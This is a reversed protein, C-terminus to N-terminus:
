ILISFTKPPSLISFLISSPFIGSLLPQQRRITSSTHSSTITQPWIFSIEAGSTISSKFGVLISKIWHKMEVVICFLTSLSTSLSQATGLTKPRPNEPYHYPKSTFAATTLGSNEDMHWVAAFFKFTTITAYVGFWKRNYLTYLNKEQTGLAISQALISTSFKPKWFTAVSLIRPGVCGCIKWLSCLSRAM